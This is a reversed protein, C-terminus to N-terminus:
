KAEFYLPVTVGQCDDQNTAKNVMQVTVTGNATAGPALQGTAIAPATVAFDTASCTGSVWETGDTKAVKATVSALNQSGTNENKVTFAVTQIPGGPSLADGTAPTSVVKFAVTEGTSAAGTGVGVASWYAFAAGGGIAVMAATTIIIRKKRGAVKSM